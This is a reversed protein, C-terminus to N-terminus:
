IGVLVEDLALPRGLSKTQLESALLEGAKFSLVGSGPVMGARGAHM